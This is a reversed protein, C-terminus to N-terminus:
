LRSEKPMGRKFNSGGKRNVGSIEARLKETSSLEGPIRKGKLAYLCRFDVDKRKVPLSESVVRLGQWFGCASGVRGAVTGSEPKRL